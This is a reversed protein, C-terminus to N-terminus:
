KLTGYNSYYNEAYQYINCIDDRKRHRYKYSVVTFILLLLVAIGINLMYFYRNCNDIDEKLFNDFTVITSTALLQNFAQIANLLGFLLGKMHHPSQCCIFEWVSVYLLLRYIFNLVNELSLISIASSSISYEISHTDNNICHVFYNGSNIIDGTNITNYGIHVLFMLLLCAISLGMRKFM